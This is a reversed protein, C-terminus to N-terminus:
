LSNYFKLNNKFLKEVKRNKKGKRIKGNKGSKEKREWKDWSIIRGRSEGPLSAHDNYNPGLEERSKECEHVKSLITGPM